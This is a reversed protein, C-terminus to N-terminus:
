IPRAPFNCLTCCLPYNINLSKQLIAGSLSSMWAGIISLCFCPVSFHQSKSFELPEDGLEIRRSWWQTAVVFLANAGLLHSVKKTSDSSAQFVPHHDELVKLLFPLLKWASTAVISPRPAKGRLLHNAQYFGSSDTPVVNLIM